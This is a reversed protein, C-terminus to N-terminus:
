HGVSKLDTRVSRHGVGLSLGPWRGRDSWLVPGPDHHKRGGGAAGGGGSQRGGDHPRQGPLWQHGGAPSLPGLFLGRPRLHSTWCPHCVPAPPDCLHPPESGMAHASSWEVRQWHLVPDSMNHFFAVMFVKM